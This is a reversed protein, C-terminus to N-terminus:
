PEHLVAESQSFRFCVTVFMAMVSVKVQSRRVSNSKEGSEQYNIVVLFGHINSTNDGFDHRTNQTSVGGAGLYVNPFCPCYYLKYLPEKSSDLSFCFDKENIRTRGKYPTVLHCTVHVKGISSFSDM